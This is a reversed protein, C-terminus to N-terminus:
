HRNEPNEASPPETLPAADLRRWSEPQTIAELQRQEERMAEVRTLLVTGVVSVVLMMSVVILLLSLTADMVRVLEDADSKFARRETRL